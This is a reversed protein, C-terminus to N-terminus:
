GQPPTVPESASVLKAPSGIRSILKRNFGDNSDFSDILGNLIAMIAHVQEGSITLGTNEDTFTTSDNPIIDLIGRDEFEVKARQSQWYLIKANILLPNLLEAVLAVLQQENM